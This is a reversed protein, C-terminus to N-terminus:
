KLITGAVNYKQGNKVIVLKGNEMFKGAKVSEAKVALISATVDKLAALRVVKCSVGYPARISVLRTSAADAVKVVFYSDEDNWVVKSADVQDTTTFEANAFFFRPVNASSTAYVRIESYGDVDAYGPLQQINNDAGYFASSTDEGVRYSAQMWTQSPTPVIYNDGDKAYWTLENLTVENPDYEVVQGGKNYDLSIEIITRSKKNADSADGPTNIRFYGIKKDMYGALITKLDFVQELNNAAPQADTFKTGVGESGVLSGGDTFYVDLRYGGVAESSKITLTNLQQVPIGAFDDATVIACSYAANFVVTHTTADYTASGQTTIKSLDASIVDAMVNTAMLCVLSVLTFFKKM